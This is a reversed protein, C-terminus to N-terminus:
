VPKEYWRVKRAAGGVDGSWLGGFRLGHAQAVADGVTGDSVGLTVLLRGGPAVLPAGLPIWASPNSLARSVVTDGPAWPEDSRGEARGHFPRVRLDPHSGLFARTFAVKKGVAEVTRIEVDRRAIAIPLGPIGPGSGVDVVTSGTLLPVLVLSDDILRLALDDRSAPSTLRIRRNWREIEALLEEFLAPADAPM